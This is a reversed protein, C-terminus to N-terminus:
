IQGPTSASIKRLLVEADHRDTATAPLPDRLLFLKHALVRAGGNRSLLLGPAFENEPRVHHTATDAMLAAIDTELWDHRLRMEERVADALHTAIDNTLVEGPKGDPARYALRFIVGHCCALEIAIKNEAALASLRRLAKVAYAKPVSSALM